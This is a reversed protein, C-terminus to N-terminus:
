SAALERRRSSQWMALGVLVAIILTPLYLVQLYDPGDNAYPYLVSYVMVSGLIPYGPIALLALARKIPNSGFILVLGLAVAAIALQAPTQDIVSGAFSQFFVTELVGCLGLVAVIILSKWGLLRWGREPQRTVAVALVELVFFVTFAVPLESFGPVNVDFYGTAVLGLLVPVAAVLGVALQQQRRVLAPGIALALVMAVTTATMLEVSVQDATFQHLFVANGPRRWIAEFRIVKYVQTSLYVLLLVPAAVSFVALADRWDHDLRGARLFSQLRARLGGAALDIVEGPGPRRQGDPASALLVGVMEEGYVHRHEAPFWALLRRYRRELVNAGSM